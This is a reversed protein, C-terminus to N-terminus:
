GGGRAVELVQEANKEVVARPQYRATMRQLEAAVTRQREPHELLHRLREELSREGLEYLVDPHGGCVNPYSGLRDRLGDPASHRTTLEVTCPRGSSPAACFTAVTIM